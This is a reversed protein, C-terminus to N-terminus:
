RLSRALTVSSAARARTARAPKSSHGGDRRLGDIRGHVHIRARVLRAAPGLARERAPTHRLPRSDRGGYARGGSEPLPGPGRISRGGEGHARQRSTLWANRWDLTKALEIEIATRALKQRVLPDDFLRPGGNSPQRCHEVLQEFHRQVKWPSDPGPHVGADRAVRRQQWGTGEEGIVNDVPTRVDEFFEQAFTVQGAWTRWPSSPQARTRCTSSCTASATTSRSTPIRARM